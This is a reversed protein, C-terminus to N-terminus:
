QLDVPRQKMSCLKVFTLSFTNESSCLDTLYLSEIYIQNEPIYNSLWFSPSLMNASCTSCSCLLMKTDLTICCAQLCELINTVEPWKAQIQPFLVVRFGLPHNIKKGVGKVNWINKKRRCTVTCYLCSRPAMTGNRTWVMTTDTCCLSHTVRSSIHWQRFSCTTFATTGLRYRSSSVMYWRCGLPRKTMPPGCTLRSRYM